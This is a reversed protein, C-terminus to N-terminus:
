QLLEIFHKVESACSCISHITAMGGFSHASNRGTIVATTRAAMQKSEWLEAKSHKIVSDYCKAPTNNLELTKLPNPPIQFPPLLSQLM